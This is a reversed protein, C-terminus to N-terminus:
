SILILINHRSRKEFDEDLSRVEFLEDPCPKPYHLFTQFMQTAEALDSAEIIALWEQKYTSYRGTYKM